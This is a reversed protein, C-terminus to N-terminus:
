PGRTMGLVIEITGESSFEALRIKQNELCDRVFREIRTMSILVHNNNNNIKERLDGMKHLQIKRWKDYVWKGLNQTFVRRYHCTIELILTIIVSSEFLATLLENKNSSSELYYGWDM